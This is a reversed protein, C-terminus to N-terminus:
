RNALTGNNKSLMILQDLIDLTSLKELDSDEPAVMYSSEGVIGLIQNILYVKDDDLYDTAEIVRKAFINVLASSNM